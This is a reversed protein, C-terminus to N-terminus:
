RAKFTVPDTRLLAELKKTSEGRAESPSTTGAGEPMCEPRDWELAEVRDMLELLLDAIVDPHTVATQMLMRRQLRERELVDMEDFLPM